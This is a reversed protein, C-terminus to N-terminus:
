TRMALYLPLCSASGLRRRVDLIECISEGGRSRDISVPEGELQKCYLLVVPQQPLAGATPSPQDFEEHHPRPRHVPTGSKQVKIRELTNSETLAHRDLLLDLVRTDQVACSRKGAVALLGISQVCYLLESWDYVTGPRIGGPKAIWWGAPSCM